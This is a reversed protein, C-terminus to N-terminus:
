TKKVYETLGRRIVQSLTLDESKAKAMAADWLEDEVRFSRRPLDPSSQEVVEVTDPDLVFHETM